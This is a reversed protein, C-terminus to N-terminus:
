LAARVKAATASDLWSTWLDENQALFAMAAEEGDAQNEDSWVLMAQLVKNTIQRRSLYETVEPAMDKLRVTALIIVDSKAFNNPQPNICDPRGICDEWAVPDHTVGFDVQVMDYKGLMSTPEWYYGLWPDGREYARALSGDLGAASGPDIVEYGAEILGFAKALNLSVQQCAWGSPCGIFAGKGPNEKNPFLEVSARVGEITALQPNETLMYRPVWFGENGGDSLSEGTVVIRGESVGRAVLDRYSNTWFEPAIDPEGKEVMSTVTPVTDGPVINVTCDFGHTLIFADLYALMSASAWNMNAISVDDCKAQAQPASLTFGAVALATLFTKCLFTKYTRLRLTQLMQSLITRM